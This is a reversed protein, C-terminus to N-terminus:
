VTKNLMKALSLTNNVMSGLRLQDEESLEMYNAGTLAKNEAVTERLAKMLM